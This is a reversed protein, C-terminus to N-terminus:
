GSWSGGGTASTVIGQIGQAFATVLSPGQSKPRVLVFIIAAYAMLILWDGLKDM